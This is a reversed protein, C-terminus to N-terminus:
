DREPDAEGAFAVRGGIGKARYMAQDAAQLLTKLDVGDEPHLAVGISASCSVTAGDIAVPAAAAAAVRDAVDRAGSADVDTLLLVFEDGGIRALLDPGRTCHQLRAALECLLLDGTEHGLSDNVQKFDDLDLYLLAGRELRGASGALLAIADSELGRRNLLGTLPDQYAAAEM